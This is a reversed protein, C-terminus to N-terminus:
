LLRVGLHYLRLPFLDEQLWQRSGADVVHRWLLSPAMGQWPVAWSGQLWSLVDVQEFACQSVM